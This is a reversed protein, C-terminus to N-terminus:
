HERAPERNCLPPSKSRGAKQMLTATKNDEWVHKPMVMMVDKVNLSAATALAHVEHRYSQRKVDKLSKAREKTYGRLRNQDVYGHIPIQAEVLLQKASVVDQRTYGIIDFAVMDAVKMESLDLQAKGAKDEACEVNCGTADIIGRITAGGKGIVHHKRKAPVSVRVRYGPVPVPHLVVKVPPKYSASRHPHGKGCRPHDCDCNEGDGHHFSCQRQHQYRCGSLMFRCERPPALAPNGTSALRGMDGPRIIAEEIELWTAPPLMSGLVTWQTGLDAALVKHRSELRHHATCNVIVTSRAGQSM